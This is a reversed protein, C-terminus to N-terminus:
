LFEGNLKLNAPFSKPNDVTNSTAKFSVKEKLFGRDDQFILEFHYIKNTNISGSIEVLRGNKELEREMELYEIHAFSMLPDHSDSGQFFELCIERGGYTVYPCDEEDFIKEIKKTPIPCASFVEMFPHGKRKLFLSDQIMESIRWRKTSNFYSMVAAGQSVATIPNLRVPEKLFFSTLVDVVSPFYSSGGAIMVKLIENPKIDTREIAQKIPVFISRKNHENSPKLFPAIVTLIEGVDLNITEPIIEAGFEDSLLVRLETKKNRYEELVFELSSRLGKELEESLDIKLAEALEILGIGLARNKKLDHPADSMELFQNYRESNRTKHLILAAIELDIDDGAVENYRSTSEITVVKKDLNINLLSVDLTGGGMDYVLYNGNENINEFQASVPDWNSFLAAVPEDILVTKSPDIGALEAAQLTAHRMKSSFSAPITIAVSKIVAEDYKRLLSRYVTKLILASIHVPYYDVSNM